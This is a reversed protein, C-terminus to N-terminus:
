GAKVQIMKGNSVAEETKPLSVKLVGNKFSAEIREKDIACPMPLVRYFSGYSREMRYYNKDNEEKEFRKEGRIVLTKDELQVEIDKMEVGPLEATVVVTKGTDKMDLKASFDSIPELWHPKHFGRTFEEFLKNMEEQLSVIPNEKRVVPTQKKDDKVPTITTM